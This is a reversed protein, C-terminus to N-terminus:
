NEALLDKVKKQLDERANLDRLKGQKDVLWMTPISAIQFTEGFKPGGQDGDQYQAWPIEEKKISKLLLDKDVDSSIGVIEFGKEHLNKYAEKLHPLEAMCPGCWTAWF